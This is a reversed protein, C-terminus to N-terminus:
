DITGEGKLQDEYSTVPGYNRDRQGYDRSCRAMIYLLLVVQVNSRWMYAGLVLLAVPNRQENVGRLELGHSTSTRIIYGAFIPLFILSHRRNLPRARVSSCRKRRALPRKLM